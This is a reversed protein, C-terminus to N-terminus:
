LTFTNESVGLEGTDKYGLSKLYSRIKEFLPKLNFNQPVYGKENIILFCEDIRCGVGL